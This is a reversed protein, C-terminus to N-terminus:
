CAGHGGIEVVPAGQHQQTGITSHFLAANTDEAQKLLAATPPAFLLQTERPGPGLPLLVVAPM